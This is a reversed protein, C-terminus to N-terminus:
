RRPRRRPTQGSRGAASGRSSNATRGRVLGVVDQVRPDDLDRRWALAVTTPPVGRVPVAVVDKRHHQRALSMPVVVVGTGAAVTAVAERLSMSPVPHRSGDAVETALDRWVPVEDPDQLLHEDLLDAVDIEDYAAVPHERGVVVVPVEDYLAVVHLGDREVPLRLLCLQLDGAHLLAVPDAQDLPVLRLPDSPRRQAWTRAWKDPTVGPVFGLHLPASDM